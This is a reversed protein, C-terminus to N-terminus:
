ILDYAKKLKERHSRLLCMFIPLENLLPVTMKSRSILHYMSFKHIFDIDYTEHCCLFMSQPLHSDVEKTVWSTVIAPGLVVCWVQFNKLLKTPQSALAVFM